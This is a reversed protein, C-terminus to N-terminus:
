MTPACKTYYQFFWMTTLFVVNIFLFHVRILSIKCHGDIFKSPSSKSLLEDKVRLDQIPMAGYLLDSSM